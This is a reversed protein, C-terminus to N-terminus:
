PAKKEIESDFDPSPLEVIESIISDYNVNMTKGNLIKFSYHIDNVNYDGHIVLDQLEKEDGSIKKVEFEPVTRSAFSSRIYYTGVTIVTIILVVIIKWYKKM